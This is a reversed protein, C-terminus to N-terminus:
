DDHLELGRTFNDCRGLQDEVVKALELLLADDRALRVRLQGGESRHFAGSPPATSVPHPESRVVLSSSCNESPTLPVAALRRGPQQHQLILSHHSAAALDLLPTGAMAARFYTLFM